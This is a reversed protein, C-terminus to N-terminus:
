RFRKRVGKVTRKLVRKVQRPIPLAFLDDIEELHTEVLAAVDGLDRAAVAVGYELKKSLFVATKRTVLARWNIFWADLSEDWERVDLPDPLRVVMDPDDGAFLIDITVGNMEDGADDQRFVFGAVAHVRVSDWDPRRVLM